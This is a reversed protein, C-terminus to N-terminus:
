TQIIVSGKRQKKQYPPYQFVLTYLQQQMDQMRTVTTGTTSSGKTRHPLLLSRPGKWGVIVGQSQSTQWAREGEDAERFIGRHPVGCSGGSPPGLGTMPQTFPEPQPVGGTTLGELPQRCTYHKHQPALGMAGGIGLVYNDTHQTTALKQRKHQSDENPSERLRKMLVHFPNGIRQGPQLPHQPSLLPTM